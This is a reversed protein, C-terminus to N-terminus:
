VFEIIIIIIIIFKIESCYKSAMNGVLYYVGLVKHKGSKSGIPNCVEFEDVYFHMRIVNPCQAFVAHHAFIEGDAFSTMHNHSSPLNPKAMSLIHQLIDHNALIVKLVDAVPVYHFM